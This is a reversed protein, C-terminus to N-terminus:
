GVTQSFHIRGLKRTPMNTNKDPPKKRRVLHKALESRTLTTDTGACQHRKPIEIADTLRTYRVMYRARKDSNIPQTIGNVDLIKDVKSCANHSAHIVPQCNKSRLPKTYNGQRVNKDEVHTPIFGSLTQICNVSLVFGASKSSECKLQNQCGTDNVVHKSAKIVIGAKDVCPLEKSNVYLIAKEFDIVCGQHALFSISLSADARQESVVFTEVFQEEMIDFSLRLKGGQLQSKLGPPLREFVHNALVSKICATDLLFQVSEGSVKGPMYYCTSNSRQKAREVAVHLHENIVQKTGQISISHNANSLAGSIEHNESMKSNEERQTLNLPEVPLDCPETKVPKVRVAVQGTPM